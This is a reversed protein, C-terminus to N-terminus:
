LDKWVSSWCVISSKLSAVISIDLALALMGDGGHQIYVDGPKRGNPLLYKAERVPGLGGAQALNHIASCIGNHRQIRESGSGCCLAHDARADEPNGCAPCIRRDAPYLPVNLRYKVVACWESSKLHIGLKRNPYCNLYDSTRPLCLGAIRAQDRVSDQFSSVLQRHLHEDIKRGLVRQNAGGAMLVNLQVEEEEGMDVTLAALVDPTILARAVREEEDGVEEEARDEEDVPADGESPDDGVEGRVEAGILELIMKISSLVSAAFAGSKQDQCRKIGLGSLSVPLVAQQYSTPSLVAGVLTNIAERSIEDFKVLSSHYKVM